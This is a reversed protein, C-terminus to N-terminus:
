YVEMEGDFWGSRWSGIGDWWISVYDIFQSDRGSQRCGGMVMSHLHRMCSVGGARWAALGIDVVEVQRQADVVGDSCILGSLKDAYPLLFADWQRHGNEDASQVQTLIRKNEQRKRQCVIEAKALRRHRHQRSSPLLMEAFGAIPDIVIWVLFTAWISGAAIVLLLGSAGTAALSGALAGLFPSAGYFFFYYASTTLPHEAKIKQSRSVGRFVASLYLSVLLFLLPASFGSVSVIVWWSRGARLLSLVLLYSASVIFCGTGALHILKLIRRRKM